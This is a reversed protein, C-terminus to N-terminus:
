SVVPEAAKSALVLCEVDGVRVLPRREKKVEVWGVIGRGGRGRYGSLSRVGVVGLFPILSTLDVKGFALSEDGFRHLTM